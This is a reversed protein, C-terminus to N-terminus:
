ARHFISLTDEDIQIEEVAKVSNIMPALVGEGLTTQSTFVRIEDFLQDDIFSQHIQAGGEVFLSQVGKVYLADLLEPLTQAGLNEVEKQESCNSIWTEIEGSLVKSGKPVPTQSIILRKPNKGSYNRTTLSPNDALITNKGVAIADEESRWKHVLVRSTSGSIPVSVAHKKELVDIFGDSTQAWKLIVYPRKERHYTFFRRNLFNCEEELIGVVVDIGAARLLEIGKGAVAPNPDLSGVVVRPIKKEIILLACPPTKGHHSCPELNVYLTSDQLKEPHVVSRIAHVEAHPTGAKQHWGEGIIKGKHVIVSGVLPNPSTRGLGAEALEICRQM